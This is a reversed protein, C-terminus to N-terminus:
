GRRKYCPALRVNMSKKEDSAAKNNNFFNPRVSGSLQNTSDSLAFSRGYNLMAVVAKSYTKFYDNKMKAFENFYCSELMDAYYVEDNRMFAFRREDNIACFDTIFVHHQIKEPPLFVTQTPYQDDPKPQYGNGTLWLIEQMTTTMKGGYFNLPTVLIFSRRHLISSAMFAQNEQYRYENFHYEPCFVRHYYDSKEGKKLVDEHAQKLFATHFSGIIVPELSSLQASTFPLSKYYSEFYFCEAFDKNTLIFENLQKLM